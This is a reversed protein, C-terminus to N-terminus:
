RIEICPQASVSSHTPCFAPTLTWFLPTRTLDTPTGPPRVPPLFGPEM